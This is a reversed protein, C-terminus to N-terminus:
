KPPPGFRPPGKQFSPDAKGRLTRPIFPYNETVVYYYTGQPFEPTKGFRGNGEDLDGLGKVYEYDEVFTGDFKGAPGDPRTGQKLRYSGTMKKLPSTLDNANEPAYQGYIPFGDAAWGIQVFKRQGGLREVLKTPIGHYHYAGNPQVHANALDIGLWQKGAVAEYNWGSNPDRDWFEATGPDFPVGNIAVGMLGGRRLPSFVERIKPNAPVQFAYNQESISNPNGRNPFAGTEHDAIGNAEITRVSGKVEIKARNKALQEELEDSHVEGSAHSHVGDTHVHYGCGGLVVAIYLLTLKRMAVM